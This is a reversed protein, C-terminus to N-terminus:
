TSKIGREEGEGDTASRARAAAAEAVSVCEFARSAHREEARLLLVLDALEPHGTEAAATQDGAGQGAPEHRDAASSANSLPGGSEACLCALHDLGYAPSCPSSATVLSFFHFDAHTESAQFNAPRTAAVAKSM